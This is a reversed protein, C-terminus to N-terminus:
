RAVLLRRSLRTNDGLTVVIFYAGNAVPRGADNTLDWQWRGTDNPLSVTRVPSGTLTYVDVRALGGPSPWHLTVATATVPNASVSIVPPPPAQASLRVSPCVSLAVVGLAGLRMRGDSRRVTRGDSM